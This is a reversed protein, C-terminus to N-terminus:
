LVARDFTGKRATQTKLAELTLPFADRSANLRQMHSKGVVEAKVSGAGPRVIYKVNPLKSKSRSFLLLTFHLRRMCAVWSM